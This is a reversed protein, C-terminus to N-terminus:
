NLLVTIVKIFILTRNAHAIRILGTTWDLSHLCGEIISDNLEENDNGIESPGNISNNSELIVFHYQQILGIYVDSISTGNAPVVTSIAATQSCLIHISINLMNSIAIHDGWAGNALRELYRVWLLQSQIIPDIELVICEDVSTPPETDANYPDNSIVPHTLYDCYDDTYVM